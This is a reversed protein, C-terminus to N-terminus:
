TAEDRRFTFREEILVGTVTSLAYRLVWILKWRVLQMKLIRGQEYNTNWTEPTLNRVVEIYEAGLSPSSLSMAATIPLELRWLFLCM